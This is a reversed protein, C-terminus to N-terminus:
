LFPRRIRYPNGKQFILSNHSDVRRAFRKVPPPVPPKGALRRDRLSQRGGQNHQRWPPSVPNKHIGKAAAAGKGNFRGHHRRTHRGSYVSAKRRLVPLIKNRPLEPVFGHCLSAILCVFPNLRINLAIVDIRIHHLRGPFIGSLCANIVQDM